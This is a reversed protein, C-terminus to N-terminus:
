KPIRLRTIIARNIEYTIEYQLANSLAHEVDHVGTMIGFIKGDYAYMYTDRHYRKKRKKIKSM